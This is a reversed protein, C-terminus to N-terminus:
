FVAYLLFVGLCGYTFLLALVLPKLYPVDFLDFPLLPRKAVWGEVYIAGGLLLVGVILLVYIYPTKWGEPAHSSDTIAFVILVLSSIILGAGLWDMTIGRKRHEAMDSPITFYATITTVFALIAGIWFYWGWDLYQAALGAFFIGAFFGIVASAGYISFVLNKRPGPRYVSGLLMVSSPLFAASGLGQFGRCFDLMLANQSFGAIISWVTLWSTGLLYIPFGGYMDALRGFFLLTSAVTLSYASAPWIASSSPIDLRTVLTPLIVNFGSVFYEQYSM